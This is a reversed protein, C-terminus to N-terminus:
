AEADYAHALLKRNRTTGILEELRALCPETIRRIEADDALVGRIIDAKRTQLEHSLQPGRGDIAVLRDVESRCVGELAVLRDWDARRAAEVMRGTIRQIREYAAIFEQANM